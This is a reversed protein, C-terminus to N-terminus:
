RTLKTLATSDSPGHRTARESDSPLSHVSRPSTLREFDRMESGEEELRLFDKDSMQLWYATMPGYHFSHAPQANRGPRM